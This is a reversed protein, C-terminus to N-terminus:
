VCIGDRSIVGYLLVEVARNCRAERDAIDVAARGAPSYRINIFEQYQRFLGIVEAKTVDPRLEVGDLIKDLVEINLADFDSRIGEITDALHVPPSILAECFLRQFLPHQEFFTLRASFYAQLQTRTDGHEPMVHSRLFAVLQDFCERVCALYVGDKDPFYHYLVGKSIDGDNCITNISSAGYGRESFEKLASEVIKRRSQQNKEERKM